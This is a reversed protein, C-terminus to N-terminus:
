KKNIKLKEKGNRAKIREKYSKVAEKLLNKIAKSKLDEVSKIEAFKHVKGSGKLIKEPDPLEAGRNFGLKIGKKSPIIVCISEIYGPGFGYGIINAKVDPIEIIGKLEKILFKRLNLGLASVPDDYQILIAEATQNEM